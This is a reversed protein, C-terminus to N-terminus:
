QRCYKFSKFKNNHNIEEILSWGTKIYPSLMFLDGESKDPILCVYYQDILDRQIFERFVQGGGIVVLEPCGAYNKLISEVSSYVEINNLKNLKSSDSTLVINKRGPFPKGRNEFTKRGMVIPKGMTVQTFLKLSGRCRWPLKGKEGIVSNKNKAVFLSIM